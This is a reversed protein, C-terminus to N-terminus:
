LIAHAFLPGAKDILTHGEFPGQLEGSGKANIAIYASVDDRFLRHNQTFAGLDFPLNFAIAYDDRSSKVADDVRLTSHLNLAFGDHRAFDV